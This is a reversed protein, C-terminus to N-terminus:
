GERYLAEIDDMYTKLVVRRKLKMTQTLMGNDLTFNERLLLFKKPIEYGGYKGKLASTIEGAIFDKVEASKTLAGEDAPLGKQEAWRQLAPFEPVVLCVNYPRNEGYIVCNAVWPVLCIDEELAAPFVFKGNELKYQEKIRGTIYLFGDKDLRGRDGTRLGGDPMLVERTADPKNHYGKMINPGYAVIEGDAAGPEVVSSDIVIKTKNVAQGVSGFRFAYSANMAIAPSTETMGYCDYVPIGIDYFFYAIDVNMAASATMSGRLRGGMKERIKSFVIKDAIAFKLNTLFDSKGQGALERKKKAAAVGMEFLAKALGGEDRMKSTIGDYIRNFVRPVAILWTPKVALIDQAITAASEALGMSGGLHIMAYLEATQGYSHAWPLIALSVDKESLHPYKAIGGQFNSTFNGHTLLVGKPDGTTGSTYILVAVDEPKPRISPVPNKEGAQELAEMSGEGTGEILYISQLTSIENPFNRIKEYIDPKSVFLVKVQSDAVIYKWIHLLEAEYMPIFRGGLGYTAFAAVAWEVRNNAIIGVADGQGIGIQALGGRLNDVRRAVEGFTVWEYVGSKNKTGFMRNGAHKKVSEEFTEVLNDPKDYQYM